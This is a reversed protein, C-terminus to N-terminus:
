DHLTWDPEWGWSLDLMPGSRADPFEGKLSVDNGGVMPTDKRRIIAM